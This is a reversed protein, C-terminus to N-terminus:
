DVDPLNDYSFSNFIKLQSYFTILLLEIEGFWIQKVDGVKLM